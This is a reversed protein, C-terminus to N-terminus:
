DTGLLTNLPGLDLELDEPSLGFQECLQDMAAELRMLTLGIAEVQEESLSGQDMRRISQREVLQRVLEVITLVLCSLDREVTSADAEIRRPQVQLPGAHDPRAVQGTSESRTSPSTM